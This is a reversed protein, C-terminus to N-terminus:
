QKPSFLKNREFFKTLQEHLCKEFHKTIPSLLSILRYNSCNERSGNKFIPIVKVAIKLISTSLM